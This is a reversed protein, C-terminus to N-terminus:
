GRSVGLLDRLGLEIAAEADERRRAALLPELDPIPGADLRRGAVAEVVSEDVLM